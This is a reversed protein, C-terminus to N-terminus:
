EVARAAASVMRVGCAVARLQLSCMGAARALPQGGVKPLNTTLFNKLDDTVQPLFVVAKFQCATAACVPTGMPRCRLTASCMHATICSRRAWSRFTSTFCM